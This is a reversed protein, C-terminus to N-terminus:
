VTASERSKKGTRRPRQGFGEDEWTVFRNGIVENANSISMFAGEDLNYVIEKLRALEILNVVTYIARTTQQTMGGSAHLFTCGRNLTRLIQQAILDPERTIIFVAKRGQFGSQMRELMRSHVFMAIATYFTVELRHNLFLGAILNIANTSIFTTSMPIGFKRRLVAAVIDMGGSSGGMKLYFGVGAGSLLGAVVSAMLPDEIPFRVHRTVAMSFGSLFVGVIALVVFKLSMARWGVFLIPVNIAWYILGVSVGSHEGGLLYYTVIALGTAGSSLFHHPILIANIVVSYLTLGLAMYGITRWFRWSYLSHKLDYFDDKVGALLKHAIM